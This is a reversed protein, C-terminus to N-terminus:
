KNNIELNACWEDFRDILNCAQRGDKLRNYIDYNERLERVEKAGFNEYVGSEVAIKILKEKKKAIAAPLYRVEPM